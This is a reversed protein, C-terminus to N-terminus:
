RKANPSPAPTAPASPPPPAAATKVVQGDSLREHQTGPGQEVGGLVTVNGDDLKTLRPPVREIGSPGRVAETKFVVQHLLKGLSDTRTYIYTGLASPHLIHLNGQPDFLVEPDVSSAVEGLGLNAYVLNEAPDEVRLYLRTSDSDPSFRVLSYIRQSGESPRSQSWAKQGRMVMFPVYDSVMQGQGPLDIVATARYQGEERFTFLPTINVKFTKNEGAKVTVPDFNSQREQRIPMYNQGAHKSLLFSLWPHKNDNNLVVDTNGINTVTVLLDVREYLLFNSRSTQAVVQLQATAPMATTLLWLASLIALSRM